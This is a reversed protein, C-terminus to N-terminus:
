LKGARPAPLMAARWPAGPGRNYITMYMTNQSNPELVPYGLTTHTTYSGPAAVPYRPTAGCVGVRVAMYGLAGVLKSIM